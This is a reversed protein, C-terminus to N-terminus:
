YLGTLWVSGFSAIWVIIIILKQWIGLDRLPAPDLIQSIAQALTKEKKSHVDYQDMDYNNFATVYQITRIRSQQYDEESLNEYGTDIEVGDEALVRKVKEKQHDTFLNSAIIAAFILLIYNKYYIVFYIIAAISLCSFVLSLTKKQDLFLVEIMRGGDLPYIPLLNFLNIFIFGVSLSSLLDNEVWYLSVVALISGIIIGPFPGAMFVITEEKQTINKKSGTAAGGFFPIFFIGLNSYNYYKMALLHGLEHVLIVISIVIIVTFNNNLVYFGIAIFLLLSIATYIPSIPKKESLNPKYQATVAPGQAASIADQPEM